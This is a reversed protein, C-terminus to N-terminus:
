YGGFIIPAGVALNEEGIAVHLNVKRGYLYIGDSWDRTYAYYSTIGNVEECFLLEANYNQVIEKVIEERTLYRGGVYDSITTCVCEGKM